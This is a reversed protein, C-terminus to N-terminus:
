YVCDECCDRRINLFDLGEDVQYKWSPKVRNSEEYIDQQRKTLDNIQLKGEVIEPRIFIMINRKRDETTQTSFAAGIIPIGGLCPLYTRNKTHESQLMGSMILFYGDPIHVTTNTRSISTTPGVPQTQINQGGQLGASGADRSVEQEIELTIFEENNSIHPTVRMRTGVDRFEFNTTVISGEDNVISDTQFPTNFGVFIEAPVNDETLIKPNLIIKSKGRTHEASVLAGLSAFQTGGHTIRQGIVGLNYGITRALTSANPLLATGTTDMAGPLPSASGLFAQATSTNGGGSRTSFEVGYSLSDDISTELVLMEIFVQKIPIDIEDVLEKAKALADPFGTFILTNSSELWQVSNLVGILDQNAREYNALSTSINEIASLVEAGNQYVLKHVYFQTKLIHGVPLDETVRASRTLKDPKVPEGPSIQFIWGGRPDLTWRGKPQEGPLIPTRPPPVGERDFPSEEGEPLFYWDGDPNLIWEGKPFEEATPADTQFSPRFIRNGRLDVDWSGPPSPERDQAAAEREERERRSPLRMQDIDFIETKGEYQDIRQLVTITKEVLYPSSVIYISRAETHPIFSLQQGKAIPTMIENTLQILKEVPNNKSIYQGIVLGSSPADIGKLLKSIQNVNSVLDTVILHQTGESVEVIAQRSTLPRIVLAANNPDLTNLTFVQTIIESDKVNEEGQLKVNSINRVTDSRHIIINNGQEIMTLGHIRLEQLLATMINELTTAEESIITVTFQLDQEDFIFNKTTLRSIFRIFEIIQVNNFNILIPSLVNGEEDVTPTPEQPSEETQAILPASNSQLQFLVPSHTTQAEEPSEAIKQNGWLDFDTDPDDDFSIDLPAFSTLLPFFISFLSIKFKM